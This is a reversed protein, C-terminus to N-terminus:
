RFFSTLTQSPVLGLITPRRPLHFYKYSPPSPGGPDEGRDGQLRGQFGQLDERILEKKKEKKKEYGYL